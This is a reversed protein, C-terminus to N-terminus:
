STKIKTIWGDLFHMQEKTHFWHEGSPMVTIDAGIKAAFNKIDKLSQLNDNSGYLVHTPKNWEIPHTRVWSLYEWSLTEGFETSVTEKQQLEVETVNARLMMNKILNEMDAIPSIFYAETIPINQLSHMAFFAGISNAMLVIEEYEASLNSFFTAFESKAEWPMQAQYDFGIVEYGAFLPKYHEAEDVSGGKGHIYVLCKKM